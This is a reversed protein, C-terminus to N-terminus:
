LPKRKKIPREKLPKRREILNVVDEVKLSVYVAGNYDSYLYDHVESGEDDMSLDNAEPEYWKSM